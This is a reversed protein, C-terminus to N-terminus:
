SVDLFARLCALEEADRIEEVVRNIAGDDWAYGYWLLVGMDRMAKTDDQKMQPAAEILHTWFLQRLRSANDYYTFLNQISEESSSSSSSTSTVYGLLHELGYLCTGFPMYEAEAWDVIGTIEWTVEDVLINSPILDGHNLVVPHTSMTELWKMTTHARQRLNQTPLQESLKKLRHVISSGVRGTCQSLMNPVDEMPSDARVGRRRVSSQSVSQWGQGIFAAFSGILRELKRGQDADLM